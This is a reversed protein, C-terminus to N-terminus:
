RRRAALVCSLALLLAALGFPTGAAQLVAGLKVRGPTPYDSTDGLVVMTPGAVSAIALLIALTRLLMLWGRVAGRGETIDAQVHEM